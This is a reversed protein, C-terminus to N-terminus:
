NFSEHTVERGARTESICWEKTVKLIVYNEDRCLIEADPPVTTWALNVVSFWPRCNGRQVKLLGFV